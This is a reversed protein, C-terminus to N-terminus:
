DLMKLHQVPFQELVSPSLLRFIDVTVTRGGASRLGSTLSCSPVASIELPMRARGRNSESIKLLAVFSDNTFSLGRSTAFFGTINTTSTPAARVVTNTILSANECAELM